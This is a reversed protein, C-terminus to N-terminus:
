KFQQMDTNSSKTDRAHQQLSALATQNCAAGRAGFLDTEAPPVTHIDLAVSAHGRRM